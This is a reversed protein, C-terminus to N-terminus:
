PQDEPNLVPLGAWAAADLQGRDASVFSGTAIEREHARSFLLRATAVHLMDLTRLRVSRPASLALAAADEATEPDLELVTM